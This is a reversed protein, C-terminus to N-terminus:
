LNAVTPTIEGRLEAGNVKIAAYFGKPNDFLGADILTKAKAVPKYPVPIKVVAGVACFYTGAASTAKPICDFDLVLKGATTDYGPKSFVPAPKNPVTTVYFGFLPKQESATSRIPPHTVPTACLPLVCPTLRLPHSAPPSVCPTLRLPHSAPPSVCPTLRLPHSAPPSVLPHSAPPSVCPLSAPSLHLPKHCINVDINFKANPSAGRNLVSTARDGGGDQLVRRKGAPTACHSLSLLAAVIVVALLTVNLASSRSHSTTQAM